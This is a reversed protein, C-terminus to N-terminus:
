PSTPEYILDHILTLHWIIRMVATAETWELEGIQQHCSTTGLDPSFSFLNVILM